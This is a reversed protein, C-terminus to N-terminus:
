YNRLNSWSETPERNLRVRQNLNLNAYQDATINPFKEASWGQVAGAPKKTSSTSRWRSTPAPIKATNYLSNLQLWKETGKGPIIDNYLKLVETPTKTGAELARMGGDILAKDANHFFNSQWLANIEANTMGKSVLFRKDKAVTRFATLKRLKPYATVAGKYIATFTLAYTGIDKVSNLLTGLTLVDGLGIETLM